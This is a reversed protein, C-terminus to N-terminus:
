SELLDRDDRLVQSSQVEGSARGIRADAALAGIQDQATARDPVRNAHGPRDAPQTDGVAPDSLADEEVQHPRSMALWPPRERSRACRPPRLNLGGAARVSATRSRLERL